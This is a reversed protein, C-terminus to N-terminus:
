SKRRQGPRKPRCRVKCSCGEGLSPPHHPPYPVSYLSPPNIYPNRSNNTSGRSGAHFAPSSPYPRSSLEAFTMSNKWNTFIAREEPSSIVPQGKNNNVDLSFCPEKVLEDTSDQSNQRSFGHAHAHAHAHGFSSSNLQNILDAKHSKWQQPYLGELYCCGQLIIVLGPPSSTCNGEM